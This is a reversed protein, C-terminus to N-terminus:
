SFLHFIRLRAVWFFPVCVKQHLSLSHSFELAFSDPLSVLDRCGERDRASLFKARLGDLGWSHLYFLGLLGLNKEKKNRHLLSCLAVLLLLLLIFCCFFIAENVLRRFTSTSNDLRSSSSCIVKEPLLPRVFLFSFFFLVVLKERTTFRM